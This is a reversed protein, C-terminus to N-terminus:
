GDGEGRFLAAAADAQAKKKAVEAITRDIEAKLTELRAELEAVGLNSLDQGVSVAAATKQSEDWDM